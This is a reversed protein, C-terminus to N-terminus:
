PSTQQGISQEDTVEGKGKKKDERKEVPQREGQFDEQEHIRGKKTLCYQQNNKTEIARGQV